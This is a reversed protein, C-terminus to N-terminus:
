LTRRLPDNGFRDTMPTTGFPALYTLGIFDWNKKKRNQAIALNAIM